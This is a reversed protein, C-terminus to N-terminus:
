GAGYGSSQHQHRSALAGGSSGSSSSSSRAPRREPQRRPQPLLQPMWSAAQAPAQQQLTGSYVMRPPVQRRRAAAQQFLSPIHPTEPSQSCLMPQTARCSCPVCWSCCPSRLLM